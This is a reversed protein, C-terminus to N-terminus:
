RRRGLVPQALRIKEGSQEPHGEPGACSGRSQAIAAGLHAFGHAFLALAIIIRM